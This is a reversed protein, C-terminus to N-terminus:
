HILVDIFKHIASTVYKLPSNARNALKNKGGDTGITMVVLFRTNSLGELAVLYIQIGLVIPSKSIELELEKGDVNAVVKL